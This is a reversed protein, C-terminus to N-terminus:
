LQYLVGVKFTPEGVIEMYADDLNQINQGLINNVNLFLKINKNFVVNLGANLLQYDTLETVLGDSNDFSAGAEPKWNWASRNHTARLSLFLSTKIKQTINSNVIIKSYYSEGPYYPLPKSTTINENETYSYGIEFIIKENINYNLTTEFGYIKAEHINTRVWKDIIKTTDPNELWIGSYIPTIMNTIYNYYSYVLFQLNKVPKYELSLTSTLSYEPQLDPNGFRYARGGHGYGEEYLDQVSPAHFGRGVSTRINLKESIKYLASVKPAITPDINEFKEFRIAMVISFKNLEIEDQLFVGFANQTKELVSTRTFKSYQGNLGLTLINNRIKTWNILIEPNLITNDEASQEAEWHSYNLRTKTNLYQSFNKNYNLSSVLMEGHLNDDKSQMSNETYNVLLNLDSTHDITWQIYNMTSLYNYGMSNIRHSPKLIPIGNSQEYNIFSSLKFNEKIPTRISIAGNYTDYSGGNFSVSGEPKNGAKKTIINIVGGMADSGYQASASGKIIEIQEINEPPIIDINQGTHIHETLLRVGDVLVLSYNAPFGDLSIVGRKPLASGTGAGVSIGNLYDLIESTSNVNLQEIDKSSIIHIIEPSNQLLKKNRSATITVEKITNINLTDTTQSFSISSFFIFFFILIKM